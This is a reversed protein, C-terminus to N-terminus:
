KASTSSDALPDTVRTSSLDPLNVTKQMNSKGMEVKQMLNYCTFVDEIELFGSFSVSNMRCEWAKRSLRQNLARLIAAVAVVSPRHEMVNVEKMTFLILHIIVKMDPPSSKCMETIFFHLFAFPTVLSMRWELTNLVLLEMRQITKTEFNFGEIQFESLAPVEMEEMKAALSLCAISLLRMAWSKESDISYRFLFRDFYIMSLYATQFRFGFAARAHKLYNCLVLPESKKFGFSMERDFLMQLCEEHYDAIYNEDVSEVKEKLFTENELCLLGSSSADGETKSLM